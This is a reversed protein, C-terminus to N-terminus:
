VAAPTGLMKLIAEKQVRLYNELNYYKQLFWRRDAWVRGILLINHAMLMTDEVHFDGNKVGRKLVEDLVDEDPLPVM